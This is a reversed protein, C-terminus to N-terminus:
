AKLINPDMGEMGPNYGYYPGEEVTALDRSILLGLPTYRYDGSEGYQWSMLNIYEQWRPCGYKDKNNKDALPNNTILTHGLAWSGNIFFDLYMAPFITMLDSVRCDNRFALEDIERFPVNIKSPQIPFMDVPKSMLLDFRTLIVADYSEPAVILKLAEVRSDVGTSDYSSTNAIRCRVPKYYEVLDAEM